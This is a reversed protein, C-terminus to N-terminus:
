FLLLIKKLIFSGAYTELLGGLMLAVSLILIVILHKLIRDTRGKKSMKTDYYMSRSLWYGSRLCLLAIPIYIIYHPFTYGFILLIGKLSYRMLIVTIFFGGQFGGYLISLTIYPIGLATASFIWFLIFIRFNKWLVYRFLVPYDITVNKIKSFYNSDLLDIQNWYFGKFLRAFIIGLLIGLFLIIMGLKVEGLKKLQLKIYRM